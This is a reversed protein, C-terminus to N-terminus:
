SSDKKQEQKFKRYDDRGEVYIERFTIGFVVFSAVACISVLSVIFFIPTWFVLSLLGALLVYGITSFTIVVNMFSRFHESESYNHRLKKIAGKISTM